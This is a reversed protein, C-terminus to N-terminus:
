LTILAQFSRFHQLFYVKFTERDKEPDRKGSVIEKSVVDIFTELAEFAVYRVYKNVHVCFLKLQNFTDVAKETLYKALLQGHYHLFKM